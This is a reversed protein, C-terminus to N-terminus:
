LADELRMIPFCKMASGPTCNIIEIGYDEPKITEMEKILGIFEGGPGTKPNHQLEPPYDGFYHKEETYKMDWGVLLMRKIGKHLAINVVQPGSGHHYHIYNPDTSLGPAWKGAIYNIGYREATLADWTWKEAKHDKLGRNWYYNWFSPNCALFYDLPLIEFTKNVGFLSLGSDICLQITKDDLSPGTAVILATKIM